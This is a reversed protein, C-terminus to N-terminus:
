STRHKRREVNGVLLIAADPDTRSPKCEVSMNWDEEARTLEQRANRGKPFIGIAGNNLWRASYSLLRTLPACARAAVVKAPISPLEEIRVPHVTAPAETIRVAERLFAAKRRDSEVLHVPSAGLIALVLGPFGGGSGLDVLPAAPEPLLDRLQASDLMHRRWPDALSKGSVL